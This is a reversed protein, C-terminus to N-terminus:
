EIRGQAMCDQRAKAFLEASIITDVRLDLKVIDDFTAMRLEEWHINGHPKSTKKNLGSVFQFISITEGLFLYALKIVLVPEGIFGVSVTTAGIAKLLRDM